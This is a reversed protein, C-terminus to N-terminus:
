DGVRKKKQSNLHSSVFWAPKLGGTFQAIVSSNLTPGFLKPLFSMRPNSEFRVRKSSTRMCFSNDNFFQSNFGFLRVGSDSFASTDLKNLVTFLDGGENRSVTTQGKNIIVIFNKDRPETSRPMTDSIDRSNTEFDHFNRSDTQQSQPFAFFSFGRDYNLYPKIRVFTRKGLNRKPNQLLAIHM